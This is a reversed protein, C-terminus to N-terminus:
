KCARLLAEKVKVVGRSCDIFCHYDTMLGSLCNLDKQQYM